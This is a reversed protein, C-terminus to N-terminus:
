SLKSMEETDIEEYECIEKDNGTLLDARSDMERESGSGKEGGEPRTSIDISENPIKDEWEKLKGTLFEKELRLEEIEELHQQERERAKELDSIAAEKRKQGEVILERLKKLQGETPKMEKRLEVSCWKKLSESIQSFWEPDSKERAMTNEFHNEKVGNGKESVDGM